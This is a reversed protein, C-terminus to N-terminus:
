YCQVAASGVRYHIVYKNRVLAEAGEPPHLLERLLPSRVDGVVCNTKQQKTPQGRRKLPASSPPSNALLRDAAAVTNDGDHVLRKSCAWQVTRRSAFHAELM